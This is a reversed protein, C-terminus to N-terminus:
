ITTFRIQKAVDAYAREILGKQNTRCVVTLTNTPSDALQKRTEAIKRIDMSVLEIAPMGDTIADCWSFFNLPIDEIQKLTFCERRLEERWGEKMLPSIKDEMVKLAYCRSYLDAPTIRKREKEMMQDIIAPLIEERDYFVICEGSPSVERREDFADPGYASIFNNEIYNRLRREVTDSFKETISDMYYAAYSNYNGILHGYTKSANINLTPAIEDGANITYRKVEPASFFYKQGARIKRIRDTHIALPSYGEEFVEIDRLIRIINKETENEAIPNGHSDLLSIGSEMDKLVAKYPIKIRDKGNRRKLSIDNLTIGETLMMISIASTREKRIGLSRPTMKFLHNNTLHTYYADIAPMQTLIEKAQPMNLRVMKSRNFNKTALINTNTLERLTRSSVERSDLCGSLYKRKVQGCLVVCMFLYSRGSNVIVQM